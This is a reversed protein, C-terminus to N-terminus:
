SIQFECIKFPVDLRVDRVSLAQSFPDQMSDWVQGADGGSSDQMFLKSIM